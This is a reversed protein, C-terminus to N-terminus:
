QLFQVSLRLAGCGKCDWLLRTNDIQTTYKSATQTDLDLNCLLLLLSHMSFTPIFLLPSHPSLFSYLLSSLCISHTETM